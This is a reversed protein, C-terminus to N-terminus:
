QKDEKRHAIELWYKNCEESLRRINGGIASDARDIPSQAESPPLSEEILVLYAQKGPGGGHVKRESTGMNGIAADAKYLRVREVNDAESAAQVWRRAYIAETEEDPLDFRLSTIYPAAFTRSCGVVSLRSFVDRTPNRFHTLAERTWPTPKNLAAMYAESSLVSTSRTDYFMLFHPRDDLARYRRGEVFGPISVREPIHECNHWRQYKLVYEADIDAWFAMMGTCDDKDTETAIM